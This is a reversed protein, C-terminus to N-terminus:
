APDEEPYEELINDAAQYVCWRLIETDSPPYGNQEELHNFLLQWVKEDFPKLRIQKRKEQENM